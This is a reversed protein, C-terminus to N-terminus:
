LIMMFFIYVFVVIIIYLCIKLFQFYLLGLMNGSQDHLVLALHINDM